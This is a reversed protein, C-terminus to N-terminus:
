LLKLLEAISEITADAEREPTLVKQYRSNGQSIRITKMGLKKAPEIDNDLRDGIMVAEQPRCGARELAIQFLKFDPKSCGEEASAAIVDFYQEIGWSRLRERTGPNQNAIVGLHYKKSLIQLVEKTGPYLQELANDWPPLLEPIGFAVAADHMPTPSTAAYFNIMRVLEDRDLQGYETMYNIRYELVRSEDLLTSGLDFFVWKIEPM